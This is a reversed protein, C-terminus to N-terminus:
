VAQQQKMLKCYYTIRFVFTRSVTANNVDTTAVQTWISNTPTGGGAILPVSYDNFNSAMVKSNVGYFKAVKMYYKGYVVGRGGAYPGVTKQVSYKQTESSSTTTNTYTPLMRFDINSPLTTSDNCIAYRIKYALVMVVNYFPAYDILGTAPNAAALPNACALGFWYPQAASAVANVGYSTFKGFLTNGFIKQFRLRRFGRRKIYKRRRTYARKRYGGYRRRRRYGGYAM